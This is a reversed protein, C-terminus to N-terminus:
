RDSSHMSSIDLASWCPFQGGVQTKESPIVQPVSSPHVESEPKCKFRYIRHPDTGDKQENVKEIATKYKNLASRFLNLSQYRYCIDQHGTLFTNPRICIM